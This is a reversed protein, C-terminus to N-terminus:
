AVAHYLSIYQRAVASWSLQEARRRSAAGLVPLDARHSLCWEVAQRLAATDAGPAVLGNDAGVLEATGGTTTTIIPLGCAMAELIANSMGENLSPLVFVDAAQLAHVVTLKDAVGLFYVSVGNQKAREALQQRQDGDGVLALQVNPLGRLADILYRHGKREILRGVSVLRLVGSPEPAPAPTYFHTNVGNPIVAITQQHNTQLALDRLGQSNAIVARAGAWIKKSLRRFLLADLLRFRRNYGPVDSGRLSVIYPLGLRRAIYGCPIGFFAHVCDYRSRRILQRAYGYARWSYVLLDRLSQYHVTGRKGIDLYHITIRPSFQEVRFQDVSSTVVDVWLNDDAAYEELLCQTANAAGGGLPPFEYNLLVVRM